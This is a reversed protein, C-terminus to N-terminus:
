AVRRRQRHYDSLIGRGGANRAEAERKLAEAGHWTANLDCFGRRAFRQITRWEAAHAMALDPFSALVILQPSQGAASLSSVWAFMRPNAAQSPRAHKRARMEPDRTIGVYRITRPRAPDVLAYLIAAEERFNALVLELAPRDSTM